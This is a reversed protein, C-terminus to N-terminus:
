RVSNETRVSLQHLIEYVIALYNTQALHAIDITLDYPSKNLSYLGIKLQAKALLAIYHLPPTMEPALNILLDYSQPLFAQTAAPRPIFNWKLDRPTICHSNPIAIQEPASCYLVTTVTSHPTQIKQIFDHLQQLESLKHLHLLLIRRPRIIPSTPTIPAPPKLSHLARKFLLLRFRYLWSKM